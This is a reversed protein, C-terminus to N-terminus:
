RRHHHTKVKQARSCKHLAGAGDLIEVRPAIARYESAVDFVVGAYRGRQNTTTFKKTVWEGDVRRQIWVTQGATCARFRDDGVLRLRGFIALGEDGPGVWDRFRMNIRRPHLRGSNEPAETGDEECGPDDGDVLLDGDNDVGDDCEADRPPSSWAAIVSATCNGARPTGNPAAPQECEDDSPGPGRFSGASGVPSIEAVIESLGFGQSTIGTRAVGDTGTVVVVANALAPIFLGPGTERFEVPVGGLPRGEVDTVLASLSSEDFATYERPFVDCGTGTVEGHCLQINRAEPEAPGPTPTPPNTPPPPNNPPPAQWTNQVADQPEGQDPDVTGGAVNLYFVITDTGPGTATPDQFTCTSVGAGNSPTCAYANPKPKGPVDNPSAGSFPDAADGAPRGSGDAVVVSNPVVGAVPQGDTMVTVTVQHQTGDVNTASEPDADITTVPPPPVEAANWTKTSTDGPEGEFQQDDPNFNDVWATVTVTGGSTAPTMSIGFTVQGNADTPGVEGRVFTNRGPQGATEGANNGGVDGFATGGQGTPNPGSADVPNCFSLERSEGPEDNPANLSQSVDVTVGSVPVGDSTVRATFENCTGSTAEDAPPTLELDDVFPGEQAGAPVATAAGALLLTAAALAAARTRRPRTPSSPM